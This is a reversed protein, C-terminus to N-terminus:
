SAVWQHIQWYTLFNPINGLWPFVDDKSLSYVRGVGGAEAYTGCIPCHTAHSSFQYREHNLRQGTNKVGKNVLYSIKSNIQIGSYAQLNIRRVRNKSDLYNYSTMGFERLKDQLRKMAVKKTDGGIIINELEKISSNEIFTKSQKDWSNFIKEFQIVYNNRAVNLGKILDESILKVDNEDIKTFEKRLNVTNGTAKEWQNITEEVNIKYIEEIEEIFKKDIDKSELLIQKIQKLLNLKKQKNFSGNSNYFNDQNISASIEKVIKNFQRKYLDIYNDEVDKINM